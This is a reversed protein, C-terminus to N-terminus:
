KKKPHSLRVYQYSASKSFGDAKYYHKGVRELFGEGVAINVYSSVTRQSVKLLGAVTEQHLDIPKGDLIEDARECLEVFMVFEPIRCKTKVRRATRLAYDFAAQLISTCEPVKCHSLAQYLRAVAEDNDMGFFMGLGGLPLTLQATILATETPDSMRIDPHRLLHRAATWTPNNKGDESAESVTSTELHDFYDLIWETAGVRDM